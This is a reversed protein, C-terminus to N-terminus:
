IYNKYASDAIKKRLEKVLEAANRDVILLADDTEVICINHVGVLGIVKKQASVLNNTAQVSFINTPVGHVTKQLELFTAINGVDSWGCDVPIVALKKLHEMVAYDISISPVEAYSGSGAVYANVAQYVEPAHQQFAAIFDKAAGCFIGANWLFNGQQCYSAAQEASPKEHFRVVKKVPNKEQAYEIYGYGTAPFTPKIGLLTICHEQQAYSVAMKLVETFKTVDHIYHDAPVIVLLADPCTKHVTLAALLVAAATNRGMPEYLSQIHERQVVPEIAKSQAQVAVILQQQPELLRMREITADLLTSKNKGFPILQKPMNMRSLPWLREGNGGALIIGYVMACVSVKM